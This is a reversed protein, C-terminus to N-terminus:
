RKASARVFPYNVEGHTLLGYRGPKRFADGWVERERYSRMREMDFEAIVLEEEKGAEAILTDRSNGDEDFAVGDFAHSHGNQQPAAYNATAIGVM